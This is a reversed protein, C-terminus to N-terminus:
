SESRNAAFFTISLVFSGSIDHLQSLITFQVFGFVYYVLSFRSLIHVIFMKKTAYEDFINFFVKPLFYLIDKSRQEM